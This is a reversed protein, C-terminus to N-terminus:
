AGGSVYIPEGPAGLHGDYPGIRTVEVGGRLVIVLGHEVEWECECEVALYVQGDHREVSVDHPSIHEWVDDPGAIAVVDVGAAALDASADRYYEFIEPSAARVTAADLALFAALAAPFEGKDTEDDYGAFTVHCRAGGLAPVEVTNASIYTGDDYDEGSMPGVGPVDM